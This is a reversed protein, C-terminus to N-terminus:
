NDHESPETHWCVVKTVEPNRFHWAPEERGQWGETDWAGALRTSTIVDSCHLSTYCCLAGGVFDTKHYVIISGRLQKASIRSTSIRQWELQLNQAISNM